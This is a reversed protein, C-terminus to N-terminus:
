GEFDTQKKMDAEILRRLYVARPVRKEKSVWDLYNAIKPSIFFNFRTDQKESAYDIADKVVAKVNDKRYSLLLLYEGGEDRLIHPSSGEEYLCIVPKTASLAQAIEQGVGLSPNSVEFVAIDAQKKWHTMKRHIAVSEEESQSIYDTYTKSLIHESIVKHGLEELVTVINQYNTRYHSNMQKISASFYIKM